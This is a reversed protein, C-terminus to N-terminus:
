PLIIQGRLEDVAPASPTVTNRRKIYVCYRGAKLDALNIQQGDVVFNGGYSGTIRRQLSIAANFNFLQFIATPLPQGPSVKAIGIQACSDSLNSYDVQYSVINTNANYAFTMKGTGATTVAPVVNTGTLTATGSTVGDNNDKYCSTFLVSAILLSFIIKKM